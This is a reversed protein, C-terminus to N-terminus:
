KVEGSKRSNNMKSKVHGSIVPSSWVQSSMVLYSKVQGLVGHRALKDNPYKAVKENVNPNFSCETCKASM